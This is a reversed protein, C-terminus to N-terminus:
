FYNENFKLLAFSIITFEFVCFYTVFDFQKPFNLRM